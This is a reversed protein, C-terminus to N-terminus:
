WTYFIRQLSCGAVDLEGELCLYLCLNMVDCHLCLLSFFPCLYRWSSMSFSSYLNGAQLSLDRLQNLSFSRLVRSQFTLDVITLAPLKLCSNNFRSHDIKATFTNIDCSWWQFYNTKAHTLKGELYGGHECLVLEYLELSLPVPRYICPTGM